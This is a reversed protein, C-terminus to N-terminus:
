IGVLFVRFGIHDSGREPEYRLRLGSRCFREDEIWAGGRRVKSYSGDRNPVGQVASLDPDNGGPLGSHYWDRCWEWVNGHMDHINWANPPYQGVPVSRGIHKGFNARTETLREGFATASTTGGRCAYEWQAETPLRFAWGDPLSGARRATETVRACYREAAAYNVWYLPVDDGLGFQNTPPRDPFDGIVRRWDGQTVEFKATWFGRTLTVMVQAEDVRHGDETAPTGMLFRGPPCWCLRIGEITREEGAVNGVLSTQRRAHGANGVVPLVSAATLFERRNM